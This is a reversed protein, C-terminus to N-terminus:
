RWVDEHLAELKATDLLARLRRELNSITELNAKNHLGTMVIRSLRTYEAGLGQSLEYNTM